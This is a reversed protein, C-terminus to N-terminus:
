LTLDLMSKIMIGLSESLEQKGSGKGFVVLIDKVSIENEKLAGVIASLTGGSSVIDDVLVVRDGKKLGNMYVIGESYGTSYRVPIEGELGYQRKRIISYPIRLRLSLAVALPIGMAEPAVIRDCDFDGASVMWDIIEELMDPEMLPIGDTVPHVLYPYGNRDIVPGGIVSAKLREYM